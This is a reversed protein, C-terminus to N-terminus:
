ILALLHDKLAIQFTIKNHQFKLDGIEENWTKPFSYLPIKKFSETRAFPIQYDNNNRLDLDINRNNNKIFSNTFTTPAYSFEISHMFNLKAQLVLKDFPLIGLNKFLPSTHANIAEKAIIRIAKKQLLLIRNLNAQSTCSYINICYLLHPHVM